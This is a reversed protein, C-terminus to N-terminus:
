RPSLCRLPVGLRLALGAVPVPNAGPPFGVRSCGLPNEHGKRLVFLRPGFHGYEMGLAELGAARM